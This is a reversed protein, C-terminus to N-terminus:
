KKHLESTLLKNFVIENHKMIKQKINKAKEILDKPISNNKFTIIAMVLAAIPTGLFAIATIIFNSNSGNGFIISLIFAIFGIVGIGFFLSMANEWARDNNKPFYISDISIYEDSDLKEALKKIELESIM